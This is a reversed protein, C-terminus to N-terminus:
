ARVKRDGYVMVLQGRSWRLASAEYHGSRHNHMLHIPLTEGAALRRVIEHQLSYPVGSVYRGSHPGSMLRGYVSLLFWGREGLVLEAERRIEISAELSNDAGLDKSPRM